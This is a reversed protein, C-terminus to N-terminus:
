DLSRGTDPSFKGLSLKLRSAWTGKLVLGLGYGGSVGTPASPTQGYPRTKYWAWPCILWSTSSGTM